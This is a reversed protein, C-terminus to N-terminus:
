KNLTKLHKIITQEVTRLCYDFNVRVNERQMKLHNDMETQMDKAISIATQGQKYKKLISEETM